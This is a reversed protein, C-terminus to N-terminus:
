CSLGAPQTLRTLNMSGVGYDLPSVFDVKGHNCDTFTFTLTGWPNNVVRAPDFNPIWRGGTPQAVSTVTATNGTYSGVGVFWAQETGAPNFTFWAVLLQNNPLVEIHLGHGSQAPDFWSGTFTSTIGYASFDYYRGSSNMAWATYTEFEGGFGGEDYILYLATVGDTPLVDYSVAGLGFSGPRVDITGNRVFLFENPVVFDPTVLHLDAFGQTGVLILGSWNPLDKPFVFTHETSGSRAVLTLGGTHSIGDNSATEFMLFQVSGDANSYAEEFYVECHAVCTTQATAGGALAFGLIVALALRAACKIM